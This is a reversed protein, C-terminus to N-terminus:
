VATVVDWRCYFPHEQMIDRKEAVVDADVIGKKQDALAMAVHRCASIYSQFRLWWDIPNEEDVSFEGNPQFWASGGRGKGDKRNAFKALEAKLAADTYSSMTDELSAKGQLLADIAKVTDFKHGTPPAFRFGASRMEELGAIIHWLRYVQEDEKTNHLVDAVFTANMLPAFLLVYWVARESTELLDTASDVEALKKALKKRDDAYKERIAARKKEREYEVAAEWLKTLNCSGENLPIAAVMALIVPILQNRSELTAEIRPFFNDWNKQLFFTMVCCLEEVVNNHRHLQDDSPSEGLYAKQFVRTFMKSAAEMTQPSNVTSADFPCGGTTPKAGKGSRPQSPQSGKGSHKEHGNQRPM